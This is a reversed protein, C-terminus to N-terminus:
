GHPIRERIFTLTQPGIGDIAQLEYDTAAVVDAISIYGAQALIGALRSNLTLALSKANDSVPEQTLHQAIARIADLVDFPGNAAIGRIYDLNNM